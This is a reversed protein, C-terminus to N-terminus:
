VPSDESLPPLPRVRHRRDYNQKQQLKHQIDKQKFGELHPWNRVLLQQVQPM